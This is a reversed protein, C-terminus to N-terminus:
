NTLLSEQKRLESRMQAPSYGDAEPSFAMITNILDGKNYVLEHLADSRSCGTNECVLQVDNQTFSAGDPIRLEADDEEEEENKNNDSDKPTEFISTDIKDDGHERIKGSLEPVDDDESEAKSSQQGKPVGSMVLDGWVLFIKSQDIQFVKADKVVHSGNQIIFRCIGIDKLENLSHDKLAKTLVPKFRRQFRGEDDKSEKKQGNAVPFVPMVLKEKEVTSMEVLKGIILNLRLKSSIRLMPNEIKMHNETNSLFEVAALDPIEKSTQYERDNLLETLISLATKTKKVGVRAVAKRMGAVNRSKGKGELLKLAAEQSYPKPVKSVQKPQKFIENQEVKVPDSDNDNKVLSVDLSDQILPTEASM